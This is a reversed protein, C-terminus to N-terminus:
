CSKRRQKRKRVEERDIAINSPADFGLRAENSILPLCMVKVIGGITLIENEKLRVIRM